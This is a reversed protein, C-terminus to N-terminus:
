PQERGNAISPSQDLALLEPGNMGSLGPVPILEYDDGAELMEKKIEEPDYVMVGKPCLREARDIIALLDNVILLRCRTLHNM